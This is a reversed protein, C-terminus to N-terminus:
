FLDLRANSKDWEARALAILLEDFQQPDGGSRSRTMEAAKRLLPKEAGDSSPRAEVKAVLKRLAGRKTEQALERLKQGALNAAEVNHHGAARAYFLAAEVMDTPVGRGLRYLEGLNFAAWGDGREAGLRYWLAAESHDVPVGTGNFFLRGISGPAEPHGLETARRFFSLAKSPDKEAAIGELFVYGLNHIGYIDDRAAAQEWYRRALVPDKEVGEGRLYMRGLNNMSYTHGVRAAREFLKRAKALDRAVGRGDYHLKGLAHVGFIDNQEAAKTIEALARAYDRPVGAGVLYLYGLDVHARVHGLDIAKEFARHAERNQGQSLYVRGLQYHFRGIRPFEKVAAECAPRAKEVDINGQLVGESIGQADFRGSALRDCEHMDVRIQLKLDGSAPAEAVFDAHLEQGETGSAPLFTLKALDDLRLSKGVDLKRDAITLEGNLASALRVRVGSLEPSAPRPFGALRLNPGIGLLSSGGTRISGVALSERPAASKANPDFGITVAGVDENGWSDQVQFSFADAGAGVARPRYALASFESARLRDGSQLVRDGLLLSGSRPTTQLSVWVDGGDPQRPASLQLPLPSLDAGPLPLTAIAVKDFIPPQRRPVLYLDTTLSSNDWPVQRGGTAAVVDNRVRTLAQRLEVKPELARRVFAATFPSLDGSGDFAVAGPATSFAVLSGLATTVKALGRTAAGQALKAEFPNDRCADLFFLQSKVRAASMANAVDQFATTELTIDAASTMNAGIPLLYNQDELQVAHGSYYFLAVDADSALRVFRKLTQEMGVKDLDTEVLVEFDLKRLTQATQTADQPANKLAPAHRYAGNGIVLAVRREAQASWSFSLALAFVLIRGLM